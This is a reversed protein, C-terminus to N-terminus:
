ANRILNIIKKANDPFQKSKYTCSLKETIYNEKTMDDFSLLSEKRIYEPYCAYDPCILKCGFYIAEQITYGFTEQYATSLYGECRSFIDYYERKTLGSFYRVNAPLTETDIRGIGSSTIIFRLGPNKRAVELFLDFRKEKCPRHPWIITKKEKPNRLLDKYRSDMWKKSWVAGVVEAPVGFKREVRKKHYESGVLVIDCQKHWEKEQGDAWDGLRQVFDDKDARGAHNFAAIKVEKGSLEAMYRIAPLGPYFIDPVFFIDGDGVVGLSFLQAVAEIQKAKYQITGFTDLFEGTKIVKESNDVRVIVDAEDLESEIAENWMQTYRQPLNEFPLYIIKGM